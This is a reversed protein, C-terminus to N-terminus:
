LESLKKRYGIRSHGKPFDDFRTFAKYGLQEYFKPAQWSQTWLWIGSLCHSSAFEEAQVMLQRGIGEGRCSEDVWLEDIYIWDWLIEATLVGILEGDEGHALWNLEDKKYAPATTGKSHREFGETVTKQQEPTLKGNTQQITTM